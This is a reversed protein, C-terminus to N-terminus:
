DKRSKPLKIVVRTGLGKESSIELTAHSMEWLRKRVNEIGIHFRGDKKNENVDYGVGDDEIIVEHGEKTERTAVTLTGGNKAQGLGHKVANEVIPQISLSPILFDTTEIDYIINLEEDFRMKELSLYVKVHELEKEFDIPTNRKLSDLNGRLYDSFDSIAKQAASPDKQCLYYITNLSNYLFHPQIQSMMISIRGSALEAEQEKMRKEQNVFGRISIVGSVIIYILLASLTCLLGSSNGKVYFAIVDGAMGAAFLIFVFIAFRNKKKRNSKIYDYIMAAACLLICIIIMIHSVPLNERFDMIGALQLIIQIICVICSVLSYINFLVYIKGDLHHKISKLFPPVGLMLMALSIYFLFVTKEPMLFPSFRTDTLRWLGLMVSFMGRYILTNDNKNSAAMGVAMVIFVVGVLIAIGGIIFQPMDMKLRETYIFLESGILFEVERNRFSEYVPTIVVKIEKGTDENYLPIMVWNSGVTKGFPLKEAPMLSYIQEGDLYVRVYQHVVYFALCNDGQSMEPVTWTYVKHVGVPAEEDEVEEIRYNETVKCGSNHRASTVRINDSVGLCILLGTMICFTLIYIVTVIRNLRM